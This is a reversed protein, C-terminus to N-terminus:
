KTENRRLMHNSHRPVCDLRFTESKESIKEGFITIAPMM